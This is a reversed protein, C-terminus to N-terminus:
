SSPRTAPRPTSVPLRTPRVQGARRERTTWHPARRRREPRHVAPRGRPCRAPAREAGAPVQGDPRGRAARDPVSRHLLRRVAAVRAARHRRDHGGPLHLRPLGRRPLGRDRRSVPRQRHAGCPLRLRHRLLVAVQRAPLQDARAGRGCGGRAAHPHPRAPHQRPRDLRRRGGPAQRPHGRAAPQAQAPHRAPAADAVAPHVHPRRLREQDSGPRVPHGVRRRLRRGRAHRVGPGPHRPRGRRPARRGPSSGHGRARRARLSRRHTTDPRALYVYEFVCGARDPTAFKTSRLGDADIAIFEGPDIERVFSAGVIDLAPTESAVVWGRELRGLVLPRVGQPDRAAYLTHEDM